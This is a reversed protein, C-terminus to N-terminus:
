GKEEEPYSFPREDNEDPQPMVLVFIEISKDDQIRWECRAVEYGGAENLIVHDGAAPLAPLAAQQLSRRTFLNVFTVLVQKQDNQAM